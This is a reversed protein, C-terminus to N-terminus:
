SSHVALQEHKEARVRVSEAVTVGMCFMLRFEVLLVPRWSAFELFIDQQFYIGESKYNIDTLKFAPCPFFSRFYARMKCKFESEFMRHFQNGAFSCHSRATAFSPASFSLALLFYTGNITFLNIPINNKCPFTKESESDSHRYCMIQITHRCSFPYFAMLLYLRKM